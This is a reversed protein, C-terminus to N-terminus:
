VNRFSAGTRSEPVPHARNNAQASTVGQDKKPIYKFYLALDIMVLFINLVYLVIVWDLSYLLKHIIGFAYGFCLIVMFLPSKGSVVRTRISKAISIPWSVGFCILMAVEFVSM